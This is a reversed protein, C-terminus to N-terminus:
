GPNFFVFVFFGIDVANSHQPTKPTGSAVGSGSSLCGTLTNTDEKRNSTAATQTHIDPPLLGQTDGRASAKPISTLVATLLSFVRIAGFPDNTGGADRYGPM